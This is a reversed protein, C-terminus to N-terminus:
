WKRYLNQWKIWKTREIFQNYNCYTHHSKIINLDFTLLKPKFYLTPGYQLDGWYAQHFHSFTLFSPPINQLCQVYFPVYLSKESLPPPPHAKNFSNAMIIKHLNKHYMNLSLIIISNTVLINSSSKSHHQDNIVKSLDILDHSM